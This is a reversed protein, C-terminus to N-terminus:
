PFFEPAMAVRRDRDIAFNRRQFSPCLFGLGVVGLDRQPAGQKRVGDIGADESASTEDTFTAEPRGYNGIKVRGITVRRPEGRVDCIKEYGNEIRRSIPQKRRAATKNSRIVSRTPTM